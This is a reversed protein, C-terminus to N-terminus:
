ISNKISQNKKTLVALEVVFNRFPKTKHHSNSNNHTIKYRKKFSVALYM